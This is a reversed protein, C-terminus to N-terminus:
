EFCKRMCVSNEVGEYQGYNPIIQYGSKQYLGIAEPQKKGTELICESYNLEAAWSELEALIRKAIGQGRWEPKVFMRKVEAANEAYEKIAGCGVAQGDQYAVVAHRIRDIKNFQAYFSHEEGDRIRLDQDLLAVLERFDANDSDTRILDAM